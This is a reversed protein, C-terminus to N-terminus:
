RCVPRHSAPIPAPPSSSCENARGCRQAAERNRGCGRRACGCERLRWGWPRVKPPCDVSAVVIQLANVRMGTRPSTQMVPSIVSRPLTSPIPPRFSFNIAAWRCPMNSAIMGRSFSFSRWSVKWIGDLLGHFSSKMSEMSSTRFIARSRSNTDIRIVGPVSTPKAAPSPLAEPLSAPANLMERGLM